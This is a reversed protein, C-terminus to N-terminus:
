APKAEPMMGSLAATLEAAVERVAQGPMPLREDTM